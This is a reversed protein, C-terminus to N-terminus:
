LRFKAFADWVIFGIVALLAFSASRVLYRGMGRGRWTTLLCGVGFGFIFAMALDALRSEDPDLWPDSDEGGRVTADVFGEPRPM